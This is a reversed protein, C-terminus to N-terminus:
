DSFDNMNNNLYQYKYDHHKVAIAIPTYDFIIGAICKYKNYKM